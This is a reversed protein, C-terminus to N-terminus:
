SSPEQPPLLNNFRTPEKDPEAASFNEAVDCEEFLITSGSSFRKYYQLIMWQHGPVEVAAMIAERQRALKRLEPPWESPNGLGRAKAITEPECDWRYCDTMFCCKTAGAEKLVGRMVVAMLDKDRSSNIDGLGRLPVLRGHRDIMFLMPELSGGNGEMIQKATRLLGAVWGLDPDAALDTIKM